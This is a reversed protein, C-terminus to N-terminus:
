MLATFPWLPDCGDQMSQTCARAIGLNLSDSRKSFASWAVGAILLDPEWGEWGNLGNM